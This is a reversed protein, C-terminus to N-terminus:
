PDPMATLQPTPRPRPKSGTNSHSHYLGAATARILGRAQSAGYAQSSARFLLFLVFCFLFGFDPHLFLSKPMTVSWHSLCPLNQTCIPECTSLLQGPLRWESLLWDEVGMKCILVSFGLFPCLGVRPGIALQGCCLRKSFDPRRQPGPPCRLSTVSLTLGHSLPLISGLPGLPWGM